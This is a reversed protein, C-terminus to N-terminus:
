SCCIDIFNWGFDTITLLGETYTINAKPPKDRGSYSDKYHIFANKVIKKNEPLMFNSSLNIINLRELNELVIKKPNLTHHLDEAIITDLDIYGKNNDFELRIICTSLQHKRIQKLTNLFIADEKSLQKIIETYAPLIKDQKRKDVEGTLINTFMERMQDEDISYRINELVPGIISKRPKAIYENPIKKIRQKLEYEYKEKNYKTEGIFRFTKSDIFAKTLEVIGTKIENCEAPQLNMNASIDTNAQFANNILGINYTNGKLETKM